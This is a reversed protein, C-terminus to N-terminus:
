VDGLDEIRLVVVWLRAAYVMSMSVHVLVDAQMIGSMELNGVFLM